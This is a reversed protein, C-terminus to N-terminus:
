EQFSLYTDTNHFENRSDVLSLYKEKLYQKQSENGKSYCQEVLQNVGQVIQNPLENGNWQNWTNIYNNTLSISPISDCNLENSTKPIINQEQKAKYLAWAGLCM